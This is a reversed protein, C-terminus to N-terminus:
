KCAADLLWQKIQSRSPVNGTSKVARNIILAPTLFVGYRTIENIDRVHEIDGALNLEQLVAMVDAELQDCRPCGSGLIKIVLGTGEEEVTEGLFRRYERYLANKYDEEMNAPIYNNKKIGQLLQDKLIKEDTIRANKIKGLIEDLGVIGM